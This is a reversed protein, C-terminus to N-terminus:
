EFIDNIWNLITGKQRKEYITLEQGGLAKWLVRIAEDSLQKKMKICYTKGKGVEYGANCICANIPYGEYHSYLPGVQKQQYFDNTLRYLGTGYDVKGSGGYRSSLSRYCYQNGTRADIHCSNITDGYYAFGVFPILLIFGFIMLKKM